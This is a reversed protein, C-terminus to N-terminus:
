AEGTNHLPNTRRSASGGGVVPTYLYHPSYILRDAHYHMPQGVRIRRRANVAAHHEEQQHLSTHTTSRLRASVHVFSGTMLSYATAATHAV